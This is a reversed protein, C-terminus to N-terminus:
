RTKWAQPVVNCVLSLQFLQTLVGKLQTACERLVKGKIGDPGTTKQPKVRLLVNEMTNEEIIIPPLPYLIDQQLGNGMLIIILILM